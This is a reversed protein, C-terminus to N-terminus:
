SSSGPQWATNADTLSVVPSVDPAPFTAAPSVACSNLLIAGIASPPDAFATPFISRLTNVGRSFLPELPLPFVSLDPLEAEAVSKGSPVASFSLRSFSACIKCSSSCIKVSGFHGDDYFSNRAVRDFPGGIRRSLNQCHM